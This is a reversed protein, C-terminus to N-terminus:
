QDWTFVRGTIFRGPVDLYTGVSRRWVRHLEVMMGEQYGCVFPRIIRIGLLLYPLILKVVRSVGSGSGVVEACDM